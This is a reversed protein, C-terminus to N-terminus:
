RLAVGVEDAVTEVMRTLKATRDPMAHRYDRITVLGPGVFAWARARLWTADDAGSASCLVERASHDFMSWAYLLDVSRDGVGLSGFDIVGALDGDPGVLLNEASLDTHVWCPPESAPPVARIRSWAQRVQRPDFLDALGEAAWNAWADITETVPEGARYGWQEAGGGLGLTDVTHLSQMFGGLTEAMRIQEAPGPAAALDGPVWSVVTWPRPFLPSPEGLFAVDPVPVSLEPALRPLWRAEKLLDDIYSDERPLRVAHQEGVRFVWNSNGSTTSPRVAEAALAPIQEALLQAVLASGPFQGRHEAERQAMREVHLLM